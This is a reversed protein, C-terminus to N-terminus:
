RAPSRRTRDRRRRPRDDRERAPEADRGREGVTRGIASPADHTFGISSARAYAIIARRPQAIAGRKATRTRRPSSTATRRSRARPDTARDPAGTRDSRRSRRRAIGVSRTPASPPRQEVLADRELEHVHHARHDRAAGRAGGRASPRGAAPLVPVVFSLVSAHNMPKVPRTSPATHIPKSSGACLSPLRRRHRARRAAATSAPSGRPRPRAPRADRHGARWGVPMSRTAISRSVPRSAAGPVPPRASHNRVPVAGVSTTPAVQSMASPNRDCSARTRLREPRPMPRTPTSHQAAINPM